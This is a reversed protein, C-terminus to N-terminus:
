QSDITYVSYLVGSINSQGAAAPAELVMVRQIVGLQQPHEVDYIKVETGSLDHTWWRSPKRDGIIQLWNLDAVNMEFAAMSQDEMTAEEKVNGYTNFFEDGSLSGGSVSSLGDSSDGDTDNGDDAKKAICNAEAQLHESVSELTNSPHESPKIPCLATNDDAVTTLHM